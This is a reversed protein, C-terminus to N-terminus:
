KGAGVERCKRVGGEGMVWRTGEEGIRGQREM